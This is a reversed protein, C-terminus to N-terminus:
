ITKKSKKDNSIEEKVIYVPRKKTELYMKSIYEGIIGLCFLQIGGILLICTVLTPYGPINIEFFIKQIIVILLYFVSLFSLIFGLFTALRLPTTSFSVIGSLGYKMLKYPKWKSNGTARKLPTYPLYCTNFGVWSFIGKTFRCHEELSLIAEKVNTRFMRFDSAGQIMKVDSIKNMVKYFEKKLWIMAKSEIRDSQYYCVCDCDDDNDLTDVMKLTLSPPQQMDADILVTYEGSAYKLGAYIVSEKGFNRSFSIIRTDFVKNKVIQKLEKLTNDTSGDDIFILEIKYKDSGEYTKKVDEFFLKVNGEENYCPVIMSIKRM